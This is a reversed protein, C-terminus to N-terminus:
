KDVMNNATLLKIDEASHVESAPLPACQLQLGHYDSSHIIAHLDQLVLTGTVQTEVMGSAYAGIAVPALEVM